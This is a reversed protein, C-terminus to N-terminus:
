LYNKGFPSTCLHCTMRERNKLNVPKQFENERELSYFGDTQKVTRIELPLAQIRISTRGPMLPSITDITIVVDSPDLVSRSFEARKKLLM